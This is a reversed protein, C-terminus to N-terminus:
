RARPSRGYGLEIIDDCGRAALERGHADDLVIRERAGTAPACSRPATRRAFISQLVYREGRGFVIKPRSREVRPDDPELALDTTPRAASASRCGSTPNSRTRRADVSARSRSSRADPTAVVSARARPAELARGEGRRRRGPRLNAIAPRRTRRRRAERAGDAATAIAKPHSRPRDSRRHALRAGLREHGQRSSPRHPRGERGGQGNGYEVAAM